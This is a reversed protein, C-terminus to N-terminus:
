ELWYKILYGVGYNNVTFIEDLYVLKNKDDSFTDFMFEILIRFDM